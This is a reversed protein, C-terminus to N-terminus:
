MCTTCLSVCVTLCLCVTCMVCDYEHVDHSEKCSILLILSSRGVQAMTLTNNQVDINHQKEVLPRITQGAMVKVRFPQEATVLCPFLCVIVLM